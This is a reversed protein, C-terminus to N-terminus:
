LIFQSNTNACLLYFSSIFALSFLLLLLLLLFLLLLRAMVKTMGSLKVQSSDLHELQPKRWCGVNSVGLVGRGGYCIGGDAVREWL